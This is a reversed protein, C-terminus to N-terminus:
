FFSRCQALWTRYKGARSAVGWRVHRLSTYSTYYIVCHLSNLVYNCDRGQLISCSTDTIQQITSFIHGVMSVNMQIEQSHYQSLGVSQKIKKHKM